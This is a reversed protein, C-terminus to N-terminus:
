EDIRGTFGNDTLIKRTNRDGAKIWESHSFYIRCEDDLFRSTVARVDTPEGTLWSFLQIKFTLGDNQLVQFQNHMDGNEDFSHGFVESGKKPLISIIDSIVNCNSM